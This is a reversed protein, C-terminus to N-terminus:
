AGTPSCAAWAWCRAPAPCCSGPPHAPPPGPGPLRDRGPGPLDVAAQHLVAARGPRLGRGARPGDPPRGARSVGPLHHAAPPAAAPGRRRRARQGPDPGHAPPPKAALPQPRRRRAHRGAAAARLGPHHHPPACRARIAALETILAEQVAPPHRSPHGPLPRAQHLHRAPARPPHTGTPGARAREADQKALATGSPGAADQAHRRRAAERATAAAQRAAAAAAKVDAAADEADEAAVAALVARTAEAIPSRTRGASPQSSPDPGADRSPAQGAAGINGPRTDPDPGDPDVDVLECWRRGLALMGETDDDAAELAAQWVQRLDSLREIGLTAELLKVLPVAEDLDLVGADARGLVLAAAQAAAWPTVPEDPTQGELVLETAAARLWRRDAPRRALQRVENRPEELLMAAAVTAAPADSHAQWRTHRAHGAEHSLVGWLVPYRERDSLRRPQARAPDVGAPLLRGDLEITALAPVFCGPSGRGAGPAVQVILDDRDALRDIQRTLRASLRLWGADAKPDVPTPAADPDPLLHQRM